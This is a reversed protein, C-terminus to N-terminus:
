RSARPFDCMNLRQPTFEMGTRSRFAADADPHLVLELGLADAACQRTHDAPTAGMGGFSFVLAGLAFTRKLTATILDPMDGLHECWHLRMGRSGLISILKAFHKDERKGRIIEEGIVIAGVRM